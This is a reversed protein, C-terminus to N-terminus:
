LDESENLHTENKILYELVIRFIDGNTITIFKQLVLLDLVADDENLVCVTARKKNVLERLLIYPSVEYWGYILKIPQDFSTKDVKCNRSIYVKELSTCNSFAYKRIYEVSPPIDISKLSSCGYFAWEGISVISPPLHITTLSKCHLFTNDEINTLVNNEVSKCITVSKRTQLGEMKPISQPVDVSIRSLRRKKKNLISCFTISTLSECKEFAYQGITNISSPIHISKLSSCGKFARAEISEVSSPINISTLSTCFCFDGARISKVSFPINASKLSGCYFFAFPEIVEVSPPIDIHSLSNCGSFAGERIVKVSSSFKAVTTENPVREKAEGKYTYTYTFMIKMLIDIFKNDSSEIVM